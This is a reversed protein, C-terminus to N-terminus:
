AAHPRTRATLMHVAANLSHISEDFAGVTRVTELNKQLTTQLRVLEGEHATLSQLVEGQRRLEQLQSTMSTTATSLNETWGQVAGSVIEVASSIQAHHASEMAAMREQVREWVAVVEHRFMEQEQRFLEQQASSSQALEKTVQSLETNVSRLAGLFEGRAEALTHAHNRLSAATGAELAVALQSQQKDAIEFWRTRLGELSQQWLGTQATMLAEVKTLLLEAAQTEATALVSDALQMPAASPETAFYPAFQTIALQEVGGLAQSEHREVVFMSFVLIMSLTLALATTDFAVALGSIVGTLPIAAGPQEPTTTGLNAIAMTIGIVTGLFGLIPIAWTITRVLSFSASHDESALDALYRLHSELGQGSGRGLVYDCAARFREVLFTRRFEGPVSDLAGAIKAARDEASDYPEIAAVDLVPLKLSKKQASLGIAKRALICMGLFFLGTEAYLTWHSCFYRNLFEQQSKIHPILEYFAVTLAAAWLWPSLLLEAAWESQDSAGAMENSKHTATSSM